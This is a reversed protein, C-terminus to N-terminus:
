SNVKIDLSELTDRLVELSPIDSWDVPASRMLELAIQMWVEKPIKHGHKRKGIKVLDDLWDNLDTPLRLNVKEKKRNDLPTYSSPNQNELNKIRSDKNKKRSEQDGGDTNESTPTFIGQSLPNQGLAQKPKNVAM